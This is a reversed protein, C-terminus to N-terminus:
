PKLYIQQANISILACLVNEVNTYVPIVEGGFINFEGKEGHDVLSNYYSYTDDSFTSFEIIVTDWEGYNFESQLDM